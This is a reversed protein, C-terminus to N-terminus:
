KKLKSPVGHIWESLFGQYDKPLGVDKVGRIVVEQYSSSPIGYRYDNSLYVWCELEGEENEPYVGLVKKEYCGQDVGEYTDLSSWDSDELKWICGYVESEPDREIGAYGNGNIFYRWGVLKARTHYISNRCRRKMQEFNMNSGYAFYFDM